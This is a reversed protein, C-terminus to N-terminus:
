NMKAHAFSAQIAPDKAARAEIEKEHRRFFVLGFILLGIAAVVVALSVPGAILSIREGLLYAGLGFLLSWCVAGLANMLLFHSWPMRNVGALFAAFVRLLAVFRGFFVIKGGHRLFMYQGVMLRPENLRLFRGHKLILRLGIFRGIFYGFNDGIMAASAAVAMVTLINIQHTSGAYLSASVLVTEGPLPVGTSELMVIAFLVWLGYNQIMDAFGSHSFLEFM